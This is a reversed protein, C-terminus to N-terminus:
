YKLSEFSQNKVNFQLKIKHILQQVQYMTDLDHYKCANALKKQVTEVAYFDFESFINSMAKM